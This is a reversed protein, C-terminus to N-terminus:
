QQQQQAVFFDLFVDPDRDIIEGGMCVDCSSHRPPGPIQPGVCEFVCVYMCMRKYLTDSHNCNFRLQQPFFQHM